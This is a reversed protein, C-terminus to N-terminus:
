DTIDIDPVIVLDYEPYIEKVEECITKIGESHSVDFSMVVDFRIIKREEDIYFGHMQLAWEHAMVIKEIDRRIREAKADTNRSYVGVGTLIVGTERYVRDTLKRTLVDVKDVTMNDPLEVHVSAYAKDPGYDHIFLDYAGLVDPEESIIEKIKNSVEVNARRGLIDKVTDSIMEYGAKIIFGSIVVGVYAELSIGKFTYLLATLLVALSLAADSLADTGSAVLAGSHTKEGTKKVYRGLLIKALVAVGIIVLSITSYDPKQPDIIKKVSEVLSTIGAYMVIAAVILASIYEIRGHGLPHDKDPKRGALKAGFITIVSSLADSLNNVADLIVAISNSLLGVGAKFAALLINVAIGILSTRVIVKQRQQQDNM